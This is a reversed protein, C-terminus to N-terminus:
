GEFQEFRITRAASVARTAGRAFVEGLSIGSRRTVAALYWLVDGLEELVAARYGFYAGADRRKKKLASLLSGVEGFLGLLPTDLRNGLKDTRAARRAYENITLSGVRTAPLKRPSVRRRGRQAM